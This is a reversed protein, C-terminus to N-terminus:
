NRRRKMQGGDKSELYQELETPFYIYKFFYKISIWCCGLLMEILRTCSILNSDGGFFHFIVRRTYSHVAIDFKNGHWMMVRRLKNTISDEYNHQSINLAQFKSWLLKCHKFNQREYRYHWLCRGCPANTWYGKANRVPIGGPLAVVLSPVTVNM